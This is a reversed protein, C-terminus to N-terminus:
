GSSFDMSQGASRTSPCSSTAQSISAVFATPEHFLIKDRDETLEAINEAEEETVIKTNEYLVIEDGPGTDAPSCATLVLSLILIGIWALSLGTRIPKM